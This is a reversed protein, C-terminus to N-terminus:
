DVSSRQGKREVIEGANSGDDTNEETVQDGLSETSKERAPLSMKEMLRGARRSAAEWVFVCTRRPM